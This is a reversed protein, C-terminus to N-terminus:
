DTPASSYLAIFRTAGNVIVTIYGQISGPLETGPDDNWVLPITSTLEFLADYTKSNTQAEPKEIRFASFNGTITTASFASRMRLGTVYGSITRTGADDTVLEIQMGRVDGSLTGASTGKLYTDVHLGIISGGAVANNYRPSIEGGIVSGTTTVTQAPKVQFGISSGTAQTYSRSNIRIQKDDDDTNLVLHSSSAATIDSQVKVDAQWLLSGDTGKVCLPFIRAGTGPNTGRFGAAKTYGSPCSTQALLLMPACFLFLLLTILKKM